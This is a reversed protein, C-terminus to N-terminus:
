ENKGDPQADTRGEDIEAICSHHSEPVHYGDVYIIKSSSEDGCFTCKEL